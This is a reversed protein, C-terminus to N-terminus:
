IESFAKLLRLGADGSKEPHFQMGYIMGSGSRVLGTVMVGYESVALISEPCNKAYYSHVYYVWEGNDFYKFIPDDRTIELRNWGMHPVKLAPDIDAALPAVVGPILGLGEHEGHEFSKDFLLQMGLCIGLLPKVAALEKVTNELGSERLKAMADGFAGVGPLIIRDAGTLDEKKNTVICDLGLFRLSSMLSFLNGVGYDVVAIM